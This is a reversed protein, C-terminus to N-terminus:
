AAEQYMAPAIGLLEDLQGAADLAALEDYGGILEGDVFIEPVSTRGSRIVMESERVTDDTVDIDKFDVGKDNLLALAARSYPCWTKHYIEINM